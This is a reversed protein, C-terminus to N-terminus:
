FYKCSATDSCVPPDSCASSTRPCTESSFECLYASSTLTGIRAALVRSPHPVWNRTSILLLVLKLLLILMLVLRVPTDAGCLVVKQYRSDRRNGPIGPAM